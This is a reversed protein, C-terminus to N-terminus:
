IQMLTGKVLISRKFSKFILALETHKYKLGFSKSFFFDMFIREETVHRLFYRYISTEQM